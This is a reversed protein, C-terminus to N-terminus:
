KIPNEGNQWLEEADLDIEYNWVIGMGGCDTRVQEFLGKIYGLPAFADKKEIWPAVDYVRSEGNKFVAFLKYDPLAEIKEIIAHSM